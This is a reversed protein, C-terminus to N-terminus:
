LRTTSIKDAVAKQLAQVEALMWSQFDFGAPMTEYLAVVPIRNQAALTVFSATLSDTVQENYLFVKVKHQTFLGNQLTIDQPAPDVGNMVDAQLAFPTENKTGAAELMYDGIPESTAVPTGPFSAKFHALAQTWPALSRDFKALNARFYGAHEPELLSLANTIAKAVVPMTSPRYWLHPNPTSNPLGLLSQVDLIKRIPSPSAAEITNMFTDYGLGNQVVLEAAGIAEAVSPSAEFTHPDTNPNSIVATVEVYRGGLQGIVDAYENEAGVAAVVGNGPKPAGSPKSCAAGLLTVIVTLAGTVARNRHRLTCPGM